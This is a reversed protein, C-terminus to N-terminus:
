FMGIIQDFLVIISYSCLKIICNPDQRDKISEKQPADMCLEGSARVRVM